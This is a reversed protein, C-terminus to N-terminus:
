CLIKGAMIPPYKINVCVDQQCWELDVPLGAIIPPYNYVYSICTHGKNLLEDNLKMTKENCEFFQSKDFLMTYKSGVNSPTPIGDLFLPGSCERNLWERYYLNFYRYPLEENEKVSEGVFGEDIDFKVCIGSKSLSDRNITFNVSCYISDTTSFEHGFVCIFHNYKVPVVVYKNIEPIYKACELIEKENAFPVAFKSVLEKDCHDNEMSKINQKIIDVYEKYKDPVETSVDHNMPNMLLYFTTDAASTLELIVEDNTSKDVIQPNHYCKTFMKEYFEKKTNDSKLYKYTSHTFTKM